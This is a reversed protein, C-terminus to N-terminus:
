HDSSPRDRLLTRLRDCARKVRMKLASEGAGTIRAIQAYELGEGFRLLLAERSRADLETIAAGLAVLDYGTDESSPAAAAALAREDAVFRRERRRRATRANRCQNALIRFLWGRFQQREEYSALGAYARLFTEQVVDEAEPGSGLMRVAFRWAADHYRHVLLAFADRDGTRARAALAADSPSTDSERPDPPRGSPAADSPM